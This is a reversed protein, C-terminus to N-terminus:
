FQFYIFQQANGYGGNGHLFMFFAILVLAFYLAWRRLSPLGKIKEIVSGGSYIIRDAFINIIIFLYAVALTKMMVAINLASIVSALNWGTFLHAVAYGAEGITNARFFINTLANLLFVAIISPIGGKGSRKKKKKKNRKILEEVVRYLGHLMGWVLFTLGTGHWIGSVLFVMFINILVSPKREDMTKRFFLRDWWRSWTLPIFIYDQLWSTLSIHWRKWFDAFNKSLYPARFNQTLKIGFLGAAGVAMDSYGSFDFFLQFSYLVAGLVIVPGSYDHINNFITDVPIALLDAVCVKKIIGLVILLGSDAAASPDFVFEQRFQPIIRSGREIPGSTAMPFFMILLFCYLPNEEARIDGRSVDALYSIARFTYFSVGLPMIVRIFFSDGIRIERLYKFAALCLVLVAIGSFLLLRKKKEEKRNKEMEMGILWIFLATLVPFIVMKPSLYLYFFISAVFLVFPRVRNPVAWFLAFSLSLFIFFPVSVFQM